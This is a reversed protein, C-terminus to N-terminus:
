GGRYARGATKGLPADIAPLLQMGATLNETAALAAVAFEALRQRDPAEVVMVVDPKGDVLDVLKVGPRGRLAQAVAGSQGGLAELLVYARANM